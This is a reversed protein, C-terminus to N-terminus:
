EKGGTSAGPLPSSRLVFETYPPAAVSPSSSSVSATTASAPPQPVVGQMDLAAFRRGRFSPEGNLRRIYTPLLSPDLLRGRIDIGSASIGFGTLWVGEVIQRSFGRMVDAVGEQGGAATEKALRLVLRRHEITDGLRGAERELELNPQRNALVAQLKQLEAQVGGLRGAVEAQRRVADAAEHAAYISALVVLAVTAGAATSVENFGLWDRKPRLSPDLLNIEQSM